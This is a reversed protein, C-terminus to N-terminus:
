QNVLTQYADSLLNYFPTQKIDTWFTIMKGRWFVLQELIYLNAYNTVFSILFLM